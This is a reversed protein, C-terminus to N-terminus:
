FSNDTTGQLVLFARVATKTDPRSFSSIAEINSLIPKVVGGGVIYGLYECSRKAIKKKSLKLTLEAIEIRMLGEQLQILHDEWENSFIAFDDIYVVAYDECGQLLRDMLHQFSAPAGSLGFPMVRFQISGFAKKCKDKDAVPIQWYGTTVDLVTVFNAKGVRDILEDIHSVNRQSVEVSCVLSYFRYCASM